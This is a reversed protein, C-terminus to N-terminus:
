TGPDHANYDTWIESALQEIYELGKRRLFGYDLDDGTAVNKKITSYKKLEPM